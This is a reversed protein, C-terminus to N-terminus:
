LGLQSIVDLLRQCALRLSYTLTDDTSLERLDKKNLYPLLCMAYRDRLYPNRALAMKVPYRSIWRACTLVTELTESLTPRRSCISLVVQQTMKPNNLLHTMVGPDTDRALRTIADGTAKRARARRHGLSIQNLDADLPVFEQEYIDGQGIVIWQVAMLCGENHGSLVMNDWQSRDLLCLLVDPTQISGYVERAEPEKFLVGRILRELTWAAQIPGMNSLEKGFSVVRMKPESLGALRHILKTAQKRFQNQISGPGSHERM